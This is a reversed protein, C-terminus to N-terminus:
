HRYSVFSRAAQFTSWEKTWKRGGGNQRNGFRLENCRDNRDCGVGSLGSSSGRWRFCSQVAGKGSIILVRVVIGSLCTSFDFWGHSSSGLFLHFQRFLIHLSSRSEDVGILELLFDGRNRGDGRRVDRTPGTTLGGNNRRVLLLWRTRVMLGRGEGRIKVVDMPGTHDRHSVRLLFRDNSYTWWRLSGVSM